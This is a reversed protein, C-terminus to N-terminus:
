YKVRCVGLAIANYWTCTRETPCPTSACDVMYYPTGTYLGTHSGNGTTFDYSNSSMMLIDGEQMEDWPLAQWNGNAAYYLQECYTSAWINGTFSGIVLGRAHYIAAIVMGSCDTGGSEQPNLRNGGFIYNWQGLYQRAWEVAAANPNTDSPMDPLYDLKGVWLNTGTAHFLKGNFLLDQGNTTVHFSGNRWLTGGCPYLILPDDYGRAILLNGEKELLRYSTINGTDSGANGTQGFDPPDDTGNWATLRNYQITYRRSYSGLVSDALCANYLATLDTGSASRMVAQCRAPSQHYMSMCFVLAQPSDESAGWSVLTDVYGEFDAIAQNEQVEHTKKDAFAAAVSEGEARTLYRSPWYTGSAPNNALDTRLSEAISSYASPAETQMRLLLEAARNGFWQMMGVTIPDSYNIASWNWGSEVEGIVYM